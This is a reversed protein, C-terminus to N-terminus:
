HGYCRVPVESTPTSSFFLVQIALRKARSACSSNELDETEEDARALVGIEGALNPPKTTVAISSGCRMSRSAAAPRPRGEATV